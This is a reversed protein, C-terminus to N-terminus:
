HFPVVLFLDLKLPGVAGHLQSNSQSIEAFHTISPAHKTRLADTRTRWRLDKWISAESRESTHSTHENCVFHHTVKKTIEM